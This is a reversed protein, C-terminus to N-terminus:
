TDARLVFPSAYPITRSRFKFSFPESLQLSRAEQHVDAYEGAKAAAPDEMIMPGYSLLEARAWDAEVFLKCPIFDTYDAGYHAHHLIAELEVDSLMAESSESQWFIQRQSVNEERGDARKVTLTGKTPDANVIEAVGEAGMTVVDWFEQKLDDAVNCAPIWSTSGDKFEAHYETYRGHYTDGILRRSCKVERIQRLRRVPEFRIEISDVGAQSLSSISIPGHELRKLEQATIKEAIRPELSAKSLTSAPIVFARVCGYTVQYPILHGDACDTADIPETRVHQHYMHQKLRQPVNTLWACCPERYTSPPVDDIIPAYVPQLCGTLTKTIDIRIVNTSSPSLSRPIHRLMRDPNSTIVRFSKTKM